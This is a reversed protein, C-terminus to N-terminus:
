RKKADRVRRPLVTASSRTEGRPTHFLEGKDSDTFGRMELLDNLASRGRESKTARVGNQLPPSATKHATSLHTARLRSSPQLDAKSPTFERHLIAGARGSADMALAAATAPNDWALVLALEGNDRDGQGVILDTLQQDTWTPDFETFCALYCATADASAELDFSVVAKGKCSAYLSPDRAYYADGDEVKTGIRQVTATGNRPVSGTTFETYFLPTSVQTDLGFAVGVYPTGPLLGEEISMTAPGMATKYPLLGKSGYYFLMENMFAEDSDFTDFYTKPQLDYFYREWASPVFHVTASGYGTASAEISVTMGSPRGAEITTVVAQSIETTRCGQENMGFVAVLQKTQPDLEGALMDYSSLIQRGTHIYTDHSTFDVGLDFLIDIVDETMAEISLYNDLMEYPLTYALWRVDDRTPTISAAFSTARISEFATSFTCDIKPLRQETFTRTSIPTTVFGTVDSGFAYVVYERGQELDAHSAKRNHYVVYSGFNAEGGSARIAEIEDRIGDVIAQAPDDGLAEYAELPMVGWLYPVYISSPYVNVQTYSIGPRVAFRFTCEQQEPETTRFAVKYVQPSTVTGDVNMGYAYFYYDSQPKDLQIDYEEMNGTRLFMAVSEEPTQAGFAPGWELFYNYDYEFLEEDSEFREFDAKHSAMAVYTANPSSPTCNLIVGRSSTEVIEIEFTLTQPTSPANQTLVVEVADAGPYSLAVKTARAEEGTHVEAFFTIETSSIKRIQLWKDSSEATPLAEEATHSLTYRIFGLGGTAPIPAPPEATIVPTEPRPTPPEEIQKDSDGCGGALLM